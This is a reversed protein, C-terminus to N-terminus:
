LRSVTDIAEPVSPRTVFFRSHVNSLLGTIGICGNLMVVGCLICVADVIFAGGSRLRLALSRVCLRGEVKSSEDEGM